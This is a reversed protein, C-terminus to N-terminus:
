GRRSSRVEARLRDDEVCTITLEFLVWLFLDRDREDIYQPADYDTRMRVTSCVYNTPPVGVSIAHFVWRGDNPDTYYTM